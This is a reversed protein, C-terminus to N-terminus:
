LSFTRLFLKQGGYVLKNIEIAAYRRNDKESLSMNFNLMKTERKNYKENFIIAFM